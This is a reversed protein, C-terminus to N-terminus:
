IRDDATLAPLTRQHWRQLDEAARRAAIRRFGCVCQRPDSMIMRPQEHVAKLHRGHLFAWVILFPIIILSM